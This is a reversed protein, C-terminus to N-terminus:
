IRRLLTQLTLFTGDTKTQQWYLSIRLIKNLIFLDMGTKTLILYM